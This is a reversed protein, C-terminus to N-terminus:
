SSSFICWHLCESLKRNPKLSNLDNPLLSYDLLCLTATLEMSSKTLYKANIWKNLQDTHM